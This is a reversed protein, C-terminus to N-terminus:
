DASVKGSDNEDMLKSVHFWHICNPLIEDPIAMLLFQLTYQVESARLKYSEVAKEGFKIGNAVQTLDLTGRIENCTADKYWSFIGEISLRAYRRKWRHTRFLGRKLQYIAGQYVSSLKLENAM